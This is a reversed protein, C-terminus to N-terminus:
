TCCYCPHAARRENFRMAGEETGVKTDHREISMPEDSRTAGVEVKRASLGEVGSTHAPLQTYFNLNPSYGDAFSGLIKHSKESKSKIALIELSKFTL